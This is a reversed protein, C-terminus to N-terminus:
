SQLQMCVQIAHRPHLFIYIYAAVDFHLARLMHMTIQMMFNHMLVNERRVDCLRHKLKRENLVFIKWPDPENHSLLWSSM